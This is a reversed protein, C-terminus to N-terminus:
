MPEDRFGWGCEEWEPHVWRRWEDERLGAKIGNQGIYQVVRFLHEEDRIIRDYSEEQWLPGSRGKIRNVHFGVFGKWSNLIKELEFGDFPNVIVHCHNPMVAFCFVSYREDQFHLLAGALVQAIDPCRFVSEGFGEDLWAETRRTIQQALEAWQLETRPESNEQEWRNRRRKLAALQPQPIADNMRFTVAYTAGEQRWRPLHRRYVRIPLESHLGRFGPPTRLNFTEVTM